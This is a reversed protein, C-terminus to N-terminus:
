SPKKKIDDLIDVEFFELIGSYYKSIAGYQTDNHIYLVDILHDVVVHHRFIQDLYCLWAM